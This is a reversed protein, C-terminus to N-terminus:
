SSPALWPNLLRVGSREFDVTNRTVVIMGHHLATAAVIADHDSMRDPVHLEACCLAVETDLPLVRGKFAPLVNRDMWDRLAAGQAADRRLMSRVGVELELITIASVYLSAQPVSRAWAEVRRDARGARAKRLESVVNTDLIHM